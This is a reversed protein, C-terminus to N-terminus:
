QPPQYGFSRLEGTGGYGRTGNNMGANAGYGPETGGNLFDQNINSYSSRAGRGINGGQGVAVNELGSGQTGNNRGGM